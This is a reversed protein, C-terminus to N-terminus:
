QEPGANWRRRAPLASRSKVMIPLGDAPQPMPLVTIRPHADAVTFEYGRALTALLVKAEVLSLYWGLCMHAGIGFAMHPRAEAGQAGLHREPRFETDQPWRPDFLSATVATSPFVTWGKPVRRGNLQFTKAAVRIGGSSAPRVRMTEQVVADTYAMAEVAEPTMDPGHEAVIAAQEEKMREWVQPNRALLLMAMSLTSATTDYGAFLLLLLSDERQEKTLGNGQEDQALLISKLGGEHEDDELVEKTVKNIMELLMSRCQMAKGFKTFPLDIGFSFLGATWARFVDLVADKTWKGALPYKLGLAAETLVGFAYRRVEEVFLVSSRQSWEMCQEEALRAIEPVRSHVGKKTFPPGLLMRMKHHDEGNLSMVSNPGALKELNSFPGQVLLDPEKVLIKELLDIGGVFVSPKGFVLAKSVPGYKNIRGAVFASKDKFFELSNGVLPLGMDGEPLPLDELGAPLTEEDAGRGSRPSAEPISVRLRVANPIRQLAGPWRVGGSPRQAGRFSGAM